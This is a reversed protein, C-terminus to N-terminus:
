YFFLPLLGGLRVLGLPGGDPGLPGAPGFGLWGGGRGQCKQVGGGRRRGTKGKEGQLKEKELV